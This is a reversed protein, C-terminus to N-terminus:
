IFAWFEQHWQQKKHYYTFWNFRKKKLGKKFWVPAAQVTDTPRQLWEARHPATSHWLFPLTGMVNNERLFRLHNWDVDEVQLKLSSFICSIHQRRREQQRSQIVCVCSHVFLRDCVVCLVGRARSLMVSSLPKTLSQSISESMEATQWNGETQFIFTPVLKGPLKICHTRKDILHTQTGSLVCPIAKQRNPANKHM